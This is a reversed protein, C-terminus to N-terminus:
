FSLHRLIYIIFVIGCPFHKTPYKRMRQKQILFRVLESRESTRIRIRWCSTRLYRVGVSEMFYERHLYIEEKKREYLSRYLFSQQNNIKDSPNERALDPGDNVIYCRLCFWWYPSRFRLGFQLCLPRKSSFSASALM